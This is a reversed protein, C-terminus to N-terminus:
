FGRGTEIVKIGLALGDALTARTHLTSLDVGLQTVTRAVEPSIGTLICDGGMLRVATAMRILHDSVMTDVTLVGTIDVILVRIQEEAMCTLAKEMADQTRISDLTGVLPLVKIGKWVTLLPSSLQMLEEYHSQELRAKKQADHQQKETIDIVTATVYMEGEIEVPGLGIEIPFQSGDKRQAFLERGAGMMRPWPETIFNDRMGVHSERLQGPLLTEIPKDLLEKKTFGFLGECHKNFHKIRGQSDVLLFGIPAADLVTDLIKNINATAKNTVTTTM